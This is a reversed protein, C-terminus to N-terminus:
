RFVGEPRITVNGTEDRDIVHNRLRFEPVEFYRAIARRVDLDVSTEGLGLEALPVDFHRGEFHLHALPLRYAQAPM